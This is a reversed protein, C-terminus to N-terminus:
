NGSSGKVPCRYSGFPYVLRDSKQVTFLDQSFYRAPLIDARVSLAALLVSGTYTDPFLVLFRVFCDIKRVTALLEGLLAAIEVLSKPM